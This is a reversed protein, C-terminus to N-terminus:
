RLHRYWGCLFAPSSLLVLHLVQVVPQEFVLRFREREEIIQRQWKVIIQGLPINSHDLGLQLHRATKAGLFASVDDAPNTAVNGRRFFLASINKIGQLVAELTLGEM